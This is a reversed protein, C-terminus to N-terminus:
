PAAPRYRLWVGREARKVIARHAVASQVRSRARNALCNDYLSKRWYWAGNLLLSLWVNM